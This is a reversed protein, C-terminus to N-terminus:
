QVPLQKEMWDAEARRISDKNFIMLYYALYCNLTGPNQRMMSSRVYEEALKDVAGQDNFMSRLLGVQLPHRAALIEVALDCGCHKAREVSQAKVDHYCAIKM